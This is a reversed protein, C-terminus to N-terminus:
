AHNEKKTSSSQSQSVKLSHKHILKAAIAGASSVSVLSAAAIAATTLCLPCM